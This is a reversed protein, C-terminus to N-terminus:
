EECHGGIDSVFIGTNKQGNCVISPTGLANDIGLPDNSNVPIYLRYRDCTGHHTGSEESYYVCAVFYFQVTQGNKVQFPITGASQRMAAGSERGPALSIEMDAMRVRRKCMEATVAPPDDIFKNGTKREPVVKEEAVFPNVNDAMATGVNKVDTQINGTFFGKGPNCAFFQIKPPRTNIVIPQHTAEFNWQDQLHGWAAFYLMGLTGLTGIAATVWTFQQKRNAAKWHRVLSWKQRSNPKGNRKKAGQSKANAKDNSPRPPTEKRGQKERQRTDDNGM